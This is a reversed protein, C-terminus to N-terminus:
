LYLRGGDGCIEVMFSGRHCKQKAHDSCFVLSAKHNEVPISLHALFLSSLKMVARWFEVLTQRGTPPAAELPSSRATSSKRPTGPNWLGESHSTHRACCTLDGSGGEESFDPLSNM